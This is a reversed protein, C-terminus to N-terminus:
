KTPAFQLGLVTVDDKPALSGSNSDLESEIRALAEAVDLHMAQKFVKRYANTDVDHQDPQFTLEVGDTFLFLKDGEDLQTEYTPFEEDAFLGLLPGSGKLERVGGARTAALPHPHGGRAYQLQGTRLNLLGYWATVFQCNPLAQESLAQNLNALVTSPSLLEYGDGHIVKPVITRKIFMTLLSAAMGHGVADAIYFSVHDEDVRTVDYIDGSVWSAARYIAAFKTGAICQSLKPLFDRQLRSALRMEQELEIFHENLRNGLRELKRVDLELRQVLQQYRDITLLRGRLEAACIDRSVVSVLSRGDDDNKSEDSLVLAATHGNRLSRVVRAFAHHEVPLDAPSNRQEPAAAIVLDYDGKTLRSLADDYSRVRDVDNATGTLVSDVAPLSCGDPSVVLVHM